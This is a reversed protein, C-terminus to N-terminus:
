FLPGRRFVDVFGDVVDGATFKGDSEFVVFKGNASIVPIESTGDREEGSSTLSVRITTDLERDRVFADRSFNGDDDILDDSGSDFAVYRGDLSITPPGFSSPAGQSSDGGATDVSIREFDGTSRVWVFVDRDGNGDPPVLDSADSIFAVIEAGESVSPGYSDGNPEVAGPLVSVRTTKGTTVNHLFVDPDGGVDTGGFRGFSQFVVWTGDPSIWPNSSGGNVENGNSRVSVRTTTGASLDRVFIDVVGNGDDPVLDDAGSEFAILDGGASISPNFSPGGMAQTEASDVSVRRTKEAVVDHVFVDTKGNTDGKVLNSSPSEFAVYGGDASVSPNDSSSNAEAGNSRVSVRTMEGTKMDRVFVDENGLTDDEVLDSAASVFAVFRGNASIAAADSDGNGPDGTATVSVMRTKPTVAVAASGIALALLSAIVPVLRHRM